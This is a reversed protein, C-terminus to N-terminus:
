SRAADQSPLRRLRLHRPPLEYIEVTPSAQFRAPRGVVLMHYLSPGRRQTTLPAVPAVRPRSCKAEASNWPGRRALIGALFALDPYVRPPWEDLLFYGPLSLSHSEFLFLRCGLAALEQSM